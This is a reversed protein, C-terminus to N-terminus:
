APLFTPFPLRFVCLDCVASLCLLLHLCSTLDFVLCSLRRAVPHAPLGHSCHRKLGRVTACCVPARLAFLVSPAPLGHPCSHFDLLM